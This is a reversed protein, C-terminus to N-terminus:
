VQQIGVTSIADDDSTLDCDDDNLTPKISIIRWLRGPRIFSNHSSCCDGSSSRKVEDLTLQPLQATYVLRNALIQAPKTTSRVKAGSKLPAADDKQSDVQQVQVDPEDM